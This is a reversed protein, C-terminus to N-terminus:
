GLSARASEDAHFPTRDERVKLLECERHDDVVYDASPRRSHLGARRGAASLKLGLERLESIRLIVREAKTM